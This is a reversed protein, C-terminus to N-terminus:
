AQVRQTLTLTPRAAAARRRPVDGPQNGPRLRSPHSAAAFSAAAHIQIEDQPRVGVVDFVEVPLIQAVRSETPASQACKKAPKSYPPRRGAPAGARRVLGLAADADEIEDVGVALEAVQDGVEIREAAVEGLM